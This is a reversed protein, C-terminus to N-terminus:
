NSKCFKVVEKFKMTDVNVLERANSNVCESLVQSKSDDTKFAIRKAPLHCSFSQNDNRQTTRIEFTNHKTDVLKASLHLRGSNPVVLKIM